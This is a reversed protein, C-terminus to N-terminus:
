SSNGIEFEYYRKEYDTEGIYLSAEKIILLGDVINRIGKKELIRYIEENKYPSVIIGSDNSIESVKYIDKDPISSEIRDDSVVYGSFIFKEQELIKGIKKGNYGAGYIYVDKCKEFQKKCKIIQEHIAEKQVLYDLYQVVVNKMSKEIWYKMVRHADIATIIYLIYKTEINNNEPILCNKDVCKCKINQKCLLEKLAASLYGQGVIYVCEYKNKTIYEVILHDIKESCKWKGLFESQLKLDQYADYRREVPFMPKDKYKNKVKNSKCAVVCVDNWMDDFKMSSYLDPVGGVSVEIVELNCWNALAKMGDSYFRWCDVPYRHEALGNPAIICILGDEKLKKKMERITLWPYEIHEFAQGSIIYDFSENEIIEWNYMDDPVVNVNPGASMDLGIYEFGAESFLSKYTGNVDYSGVDLVRKKRNETSCQVCYKKVFCEMRLMSSDHM